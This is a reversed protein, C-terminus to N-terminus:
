KDGIKLGALVAGVIAVGQGRSRRSYAERLAANKKRLEEARREAMIERRTYNLYKFLHRPKQGANFKRELAHLCELVVGAPSLSHSFNTTLTIWAFVDKYAVKDARKLQAAIERAEAIMEEPTVSPSRGTAGVIPRVPGISRTM